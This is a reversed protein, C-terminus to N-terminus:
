PQTLLFNSFLVITREITRAHPQFLHFSLPIGFPTNAHCFISVYINLASACTFQVTCVPSHGWSNSTFISLEISPCDFLFVTVEVAFPIVLQKM